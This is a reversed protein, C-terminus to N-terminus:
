DSQVTCDYSWQACAHPVSSFECGVTFFAAICIIFACLFWIAIAPTMWSFYKERISKKPPKVEQPAAYYSQQAQPYAYGYQTSM